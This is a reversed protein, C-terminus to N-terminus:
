ACATRRPWARTGVSPLVTRPFSPVLLDFQADGRALDWSGTRRALVAATCLASCNKRTQSRTERAHQEATDNPPTQQM